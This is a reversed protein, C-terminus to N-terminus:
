DVPLASLTCRAAALAKDIVSVARFIANQCIRFPSQQTWSGGPVAVAAGGLLAFLERRRM